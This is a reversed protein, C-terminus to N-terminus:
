GRINYLIGLNGYNSAMGQKRSLEENIVLSKRYMAEAQELDGRINYLNGLNGYDKAMGEKHGLEEDIVLAKRHMVEAQELDGRTKYLIGLNGYAVASWIKNNTSEGLVKRFAQEAQALEGYRNQLRGVQNWGDPNDPDLKVAQLYADLAGQTDHLFALAGLHRYAEAAKSHAVEGKATERTAIEQFIEIAAEIKGEALQKLANDIGAPANPKGRQNALAIVAETLNKIQDQYDQERGQYALVQENFAEIIANVDVSQPVPFERHIQFFELAFGLFIVLLAIIFGYRLISHVVKSGSRKSLPPIIGSKILARHIGFFLMLVFGCLVLPDKLYVAIEAFGKLEKM